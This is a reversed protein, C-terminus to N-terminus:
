SRMLARVRPQDLFSERLGLPRLSEAIGEAIDHATERNAEAEKSNGLRSNVDALDALIPWLHLNSGSAEALACAQMLVRHAEELRDLGLLARGKWRLVEPVDVRTLPSVEALLPELLALARAHEGGAM